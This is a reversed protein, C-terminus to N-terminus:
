RKAESARDEDAALSAALRINIEANMSRRNRAAVAKMRERMGEDFRLMFKDAIQSPYRKGEM